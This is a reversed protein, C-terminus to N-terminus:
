RKSATLTQAFLQDEFYFPQSNGEGFGASRLEGALLDLAEPSLAAGALDAMREGYHDAEAVVRRLYDLRAKLGHGALRAGFVAMSEETFFKIQGPDAHLRSRARLFSTRDNIEARLKTATQDRRPDLKRKEVRQLRRLLAEIPQHLDSARCVELQALGDRAQEVIASDSRHVMAAVRGGPKLLRFVERAATSAEAYELAFQSIALDFSASALATNEISTRPHFEIRELAERATQDTVDDLPRIDAYDVGVVDFQRGHADGYRLASLAIGGNGTGLDIIRLAGPLMEFVPEWFANITEDYSTQFRGTFTTVTGKRWFSSWQDAGIRSM